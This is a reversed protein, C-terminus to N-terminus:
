RLRVFSSRVSELEYMFGQWGARRATASLPSRPRFMAPNQLDASLYFIAYKRSLKEVLVLFLPFYIATEM